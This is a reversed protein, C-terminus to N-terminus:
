HTSQAILADIVQRFEKREMDPDDRIYYGNGVRAFSCGFLYYPLSRIENTEYFIDAEGEPIGDEPVPTLKDDGTDFEWHYARIRGGYSGVVEDYLPGGWDCHECVRKGYMRIVPVGDETCLPLGTYQFSKFSPITSTTTTLTTEGPAPPATTPVQVTQSTTPAPGGKPPLEGMLAYSGITTMTPQPPTESGICGCFLLASAAWVLAHRM